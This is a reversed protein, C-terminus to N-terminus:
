NYCKGTKVNSYKNAPISYTGVKFIKENNNLDLFIHLNDKGGTEIFNRYLSKVHEDPRLSGEAQQVSLSSPRAKLLTARALPLRAHWKSRRTRKRVAYKDTDESIM